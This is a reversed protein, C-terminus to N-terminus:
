RFGTSLLRVFALHERLYVNSVNLFKYLVCASRESTSFGNCPAIAAESHKLAPQLFDDGRRLLRGAVGNAQGIAVCCCIHVLFLQLM